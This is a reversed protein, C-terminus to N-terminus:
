SFNHRCSRQSVNENDTYYCDGFKICLNTGNMEPCIIVAKALRYFHAPVVIYAGLRAIPQFVLRASVLRVNVREYDDM